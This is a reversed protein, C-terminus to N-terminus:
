NCTDWNNIFQKGLKELSSETNATFKLRPSVVYDSVKAVNANPNFLLLVYM